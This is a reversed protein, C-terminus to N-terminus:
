SWLMNSLIPNFIAFPQVLIQPSDKNKQHPRFWKKVLVQVVKPKFPCLLSLDSCEAVMQCELLLFLYLVGFYGDIQEWM